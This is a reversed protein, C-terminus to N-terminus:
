KAVLILGAGVLVGVGVGGWFEARIWVPRAEQKAAERLADQLRQIQREQVQSKDEHDGILLNVEAACLEKAEEVASAIKKPCRGVVSFVLSSYAPNLLTGKYPAPEGRDIDFAECHHKECWASVSPVLTAPSSIIAVLLSLHTM